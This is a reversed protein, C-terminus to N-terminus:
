QVLAVVSIFNVICVSIRLVTEVDDLESVSFSLRSSDLSKRFSMSKTMQLGPGWPAPSM